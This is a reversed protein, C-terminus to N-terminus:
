KPLDPFCHSCSMCANCSSSPLPGHVGQTCPPHGLGMAAMHHAARRVRHSPAVFQVAEM